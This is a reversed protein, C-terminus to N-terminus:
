LCRLFYKLYNYILIFRLPMIKAPPDPVLNYGKVLTTEFCGSDITEVFIVEINEPIISLDIHESLDQVVYLKM